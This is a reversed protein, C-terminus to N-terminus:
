DLLIIILRGYSEFVGTDKRLPTSDTFYIYIFIYIYIYLTKM